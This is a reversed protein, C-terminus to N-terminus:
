TDLLAGLRTTDNRIWRHSAEADYHANRAASFGDERRRRHM